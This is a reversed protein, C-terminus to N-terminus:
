ITWLLNMLAYVLTVSDKAVPHLYFVSKNETISSVLNGKCHM